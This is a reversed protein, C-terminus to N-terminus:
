QTCPGWNQLLAFFDAVGVMGDPEDADGATDWPCAAPPTPCHGWNQLVAFFDDVGVVDDGGPPEIDWPCAYEPRWVRVDIIIEDIFAHADPTGPIDLHVGFWMDGTYPLGEEIRVHWILKFWQPAIQILQQDFESYLEPAATFIATPFYIENDHDQQATVQLIFEAPVMPYLGSGDEYTPWAPRLEIEHGASESGPDAPEVIELICCMSVPSVPHFEVPAWLLAYGNGSPTAYEEFSVDFEDAPLYFGPEGGGGLFTSWRQYSTNPDGRWEPAGLDAAPVTATASLVWVLFWGIGEGTRVV